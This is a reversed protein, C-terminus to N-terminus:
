RARRVKDELFGPLSLKDNNGLDILGWGRLPHHESTAEKYAPYYLRYQAKPNFDEEIYEYSCTQGQYVDYGFCDAGPVKFDDILVYARKFKSTIFSIEEKLPWQFGYGHADLWFVVDKEFLSGYRSVLRPLFEQSIENYITVNPLKSTHEVAELFAQNDPECSVCRVWPYACAVYRLTSGVNTGTEIFYTSRQMLVGVLQLLYLDGHFGIEYFEFRKNPGQGTDGRKLVRNLVDLIRCM